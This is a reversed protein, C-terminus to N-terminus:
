IHPERGPEQPGFIRTHATRNRTDAAILRKVALGLRSPEPLGQLVAAVSLADFIALPVTAPMLLRYYYVNPVALTLIFAHTLALALCTKTLTSQRMLLGPLALLWLMFVTWNVLPVDGDSLTRPFGLVYGAKLGARHVVEGPVDVVAEASDAIQTGAINRLTLWPQTVLEPRGPPVLGLVANVGVSDPLPKPSGAAVLNRLPILSALLVIPLVFAFANALWERRSSARCLIAVLFPVALWPTTRALVALGMLAGALMLRRRALREQQSLVFLLAALVLLLLNESLLYGALDFWAAALGTAFVIILGAIGAARPLVSLAVLAVIVGICVFQLLVIAQPSEGAVIHEGALWFPYLVQPGFAAAHGLAAGQLMLWSGGRIDRASAEYSLWDNGGSLVLLNGHQTYWDVIHPLTLVGALAGAVAYGLRASPTLTRWGARVASVLALAVLTITAWDLWPLDRGLTRQWGSSPEPSWNLSELHLSLAATSVDQATVSVTLIQPEPANVRVDWGGAQVTRQYIFAITADDQAGGYGAAKLESRMQDYTRPGKPTLVVGGAQSATSASDFVTQPGLTVTIPASSALHLDGVGQVFAQATFAVPLTERKPQGPLFFALRRDNILYAPAQGAGFDVSGTQTDSSVTQGNAVITQQLTWAQPAAVSGLLLRLAGIVCASWLLWGPVRLRRVLLVALLAVVSANASAQWADVMAG